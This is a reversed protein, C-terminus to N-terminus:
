QVVFQAKIVDGGATSTIPYIGEALPLAFKLMADAGPDVPDVSADGPFCSRTPCGNDNPTAICGVAFGHQTTGGNHLNVTISSTNQAKLIMPSFGDDDVTVDFTYKGGVVGDADNPMCSGGAGTGAGGGGGSCGLLAGTLLGSVALL